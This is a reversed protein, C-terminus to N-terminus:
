ANPLAAFASASANWSALFTPWATLAAAFVSPYPVIGFKSTKSLLATGIEPSGMTVMWRFPGMDSLWAANWAM